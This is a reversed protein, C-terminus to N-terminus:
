ELDEVSIPDEKPKVKYVLKEFKVVPPIEQYFATMEKKYETPLTKKEM